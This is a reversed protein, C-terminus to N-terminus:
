FGAKNLSDDLRKEDVFKKFQEAFEKAHQIAQTLQVHKNAYVTKDKANIMESHIKKINDLYVQFKKNIELKEFEKREEETKESNWLEKIKNILNRAGVAALIAFTTGFAGAANITEFQDENIVSNYVSELNIQDKQNSYM